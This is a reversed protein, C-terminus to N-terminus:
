FYARNVPRLCKSRTDIRFWQGGMNIFMRSSSGPAVYRRRYRRRYWRRYPKSEVPEAPLEDDGPPNDQLQNLLEVLEDKMEVDEEPPPPPAEEEEIPDGDADFADVMPWPDPDRHGVRRVKFDREETKSKAEREANAFAEQLDAARVIYDTMIDPHDRHLNEIEEIAADSPFGSYDFEKEELEPDDQEIVTASGSIPYRGFPERMANQRTLSLEPVHIGTGPDEVDFVSFRDPRMVYLDRHYNDPRGEAAARALGMEAQRSFDAPFNRYIDALWNEFIAERSANWHRRSM